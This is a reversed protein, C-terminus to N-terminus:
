VLKTCYSSNVTLTKFHMNHYFMCKTDESTLNYPHMTQACTSKMVERNMLNNEEIINGGVWISGGVKAQM